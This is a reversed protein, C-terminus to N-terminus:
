DVFVTESGTVGISGCNVADGIRGQPLGNTFVTESGSALKGDHPQCDGSGHTEWLDNLRHNQLGDTYVDPSGTIAKRSEWCPGHGSCIDTVRLVGPM